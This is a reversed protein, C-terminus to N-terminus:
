NNPNKHKILRLIDQFWYRKIHDCGRADDYFQIKCYMVSFVEGDHKDIIICFNEKYCNWKNLTDEFDELLCDESSWCIDFKDLIYILDRWENKTECRILMQKNFINVM